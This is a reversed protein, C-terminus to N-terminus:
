GNDEVTGRMHKGTERVRDQLNHYEEQLDHNNHTWWYYIAGAGLAIALGSGFVKFM